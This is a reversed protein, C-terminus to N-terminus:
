GFRVEYVVSRISPAFGLTEYLTRAATADPDVSLFVEDCGAERMDELATAVLVAGVQERRRASDVAVYELRGFDTDEVAIWVCAGVVTDEDIVCAIQYGEELYERLRSLADDEWQFSDGLLSAVELLRADASNRLRLVPWAPAKESRPNDAAVWNMELNKEKAIWGREKLLALLPTNEAVVCLRLLGFRRAALREMWAIATPLLIAPESGELLYPGVGYVMARKSREIMTGSGVDEPSFLLGFAAQPVGLESVIIRLGRQWRLGYLKYEALLETATECRPYALGCEPHDYQAKLQKEILSLDSRRAPRLTMGQMEAFITSM